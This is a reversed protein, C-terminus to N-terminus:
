TNGAIRGLKRVRRALGALQMRVTPLLRLVLTAALGVALTSAAVVLGLEIM